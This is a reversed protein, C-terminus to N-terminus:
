RSEYRMAQTRDPPRTPRCNASITPDRDNSGFLRRAVIREHCVGCVGSMATRRGVSLRRGAADSEHDEWGKLHQIEGPGQRDEV